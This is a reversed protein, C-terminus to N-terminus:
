EDAGPAAVVDVGGLVIEGQYGTVLFTQVDYPPTQFEVPRSSFLRCTYWAVIDAIDLLAHKEDAEALHIPLHSEGFDGKVTMDKAIEGWQFQKSFWKVRTRERDIYVRSVTYGPAVVNGSFRWWPKNPSAPRAKSEKVPIVTQPQMLLAVHKFTWLERWKDNIPHTLDDYGARGLLRFNTPYNDVPMIGALLVPHHFQLCSLVEGLLQNVQTVNLHAWASEQRAHGSMLERCHLPTSASAGYRVKIENVAREVPELEAEPLLLLGYVTAGEGTSADGFAVYVTETV